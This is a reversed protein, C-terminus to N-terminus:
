TPVQSVIWLGLLGLGRWLFPMTSFPVLLPVFTIYWIFYQSTCVKNFTVFAFTQAFCCFSIDKHFAWGILVLVLLQPLFSLIAVATSEAEFFNLYILYFYVSFNHRHDKRV